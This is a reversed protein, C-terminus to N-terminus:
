EHGNDVVGNVFRDYLRVCYWVCALFAAAFTVVPIAITSIITGLIAFFDIWHKAQDNM